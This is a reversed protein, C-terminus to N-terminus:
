NRRNPGRGFYWFQAFHFMEHSPNRKALRQVQPRRRLSRASAVAARQHLGSNRQDNRAHLSHPAAAFKATAGLMLEPDGHICECVIKKAETEASVSVGNPFRERHVPFIRKRKPWHLRRQPFERGADPGRFRGDPMVLEGKRRLNQLACMQLPPIM